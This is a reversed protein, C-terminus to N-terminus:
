TLFKFHYCAKWWPFESIKFEQFCLSSCYNNHHHQHQYPTYEVRPSCMQQVKSYKLKNVPFAHSWDHQRCPLTQHNRAQRQAEQAEQRYLLSPWWVTPTTTGGWMGNYESGAGALSHSLVWCQVSFVRCLNFVSRREIMLCYGPTSIYGPQWRSDYMLQMMCKYYPWDSCLWISMTKILLM